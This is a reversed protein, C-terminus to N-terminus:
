KKGRGSMRLRVFEELSNQWRPMAPQGTLRLMMNDLVAYPPRLYEFDSPERDMVIEARTDTLRFLERLFEALTCQGECSLHFTGYESEKITRIIYEALTLSSTPSGIIPRGMEITGNKRAQDLFYTLARKGYMWSSRIVTHKTCLDRVFQEGAAKSRGYVTEPSIPDFESYPRNSRGDFVFDTSLYILHADLSDAAIALNRAGIAHLRFADDANEECYRRNGLTACDVIVDPRNREAYLEVQSLSTIDVDERETALVDYEGPQLTKSLAAGLRESRGAIWVRYNQKM